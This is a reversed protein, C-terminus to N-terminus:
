RAPSLRPHPIYLRGQDIWEYLGGGSPIIDGSPRRTKGNMSMVQPKVVYFEPFFIRTTICPSLQYTLLSAWHGVWIVVGCIKNNNQMTQNSSLKQSNRIAILIASTEAPSLEAILGHTGNASSDLASISGSTLIHFITSEGIIILWELAKIEFRKRLSEEWREM